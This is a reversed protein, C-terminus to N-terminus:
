QKILKAIGLTENSETKWRIIYLGNALDQVNIQNGAQGHKIQVLQGLQNYIEISNVQHLWETADITVVDSAPNPYIRVNEITVSQTNTVTINIEDSNSCNNADTVTVSYIGSTSVTIQQTTEGTSWLYSSWSGADLTMSDGAVNITATDSLGIVIQPNSVINIADSDFCGNGDTVTVAYFGTSDVTISSTTKINSWQYTANGAATVDLIINEGFCITTDNGLIVIPSPVTSINISDTFVCTGSTLTIKYLGATDVQLVSSSSNSNFWNFITNISQAGADLVLPANDCITTDLGLDTTPITDVNLNITTQQTCSGDGVELTFTNIGHVYFATNLVSDTSVTAGNSNIWSFSTAGPANGNLQITDGVCVSLNSINGSPTITPSLPCCSTVTMPVLSSSSFIPNGTPGLITNVIVNYNGAPINGISYNDSFSGLAPVIIFPNNYHINITLLGNTITHNYSVVSYSLSNLTGSVNFTVNACDTPNASIIVNSITQSYSIVSFLSFCLIFLYKKVQLFKMQM